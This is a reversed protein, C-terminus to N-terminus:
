LLQAHVHLHSHMRACSSSAKNMNPLCAYMFVGICTHVQARSRVRKGELSCVHLRAHVCALTCAYMCACPSLCTKALIALRTVGDQVGSRTVAPRCGDMHLTRLRGRHVHLTWLRPTREHHHAFGLVWRASSPSESDEIRRSFGPSDAKAHPSGVFLQFKSVLPPRCSTARLVRFHFMHQGHGGVSLNLCRCVHCIIGRVICCQRHDVGGLM